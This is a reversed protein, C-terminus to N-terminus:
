LVEIAYTGCFTVRCALRGGVSKVRTDRAGHILASHVSEYRLAALWSGARAKM